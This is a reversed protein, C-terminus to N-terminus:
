SYTPQFVKKILIPYAGFGALASFLGSFFRGFAFAPILSFLLTFGIYLILMAAVGIGAKVFQKWMRDCKTSFNVSSAEYYWGALMGIYIGTRNIIGSMGALDIVENFYLSMTVCIMVFVPILQIFAYLLYQSRDFLTGDIFANFVIVFIAGCLIAAIAGWLSCMGLYLYSFVTLIVVLVSLARTLLQRFRTFIGASICTINFIGNSPFTYGTINNRVIDLTEYHPDSVWPLPEHVSANVINLISSASIYTFFLKYATKKGFCWFLVGLACMFVIEEGLLSFTLTIINLIPLRIGALINLLTM